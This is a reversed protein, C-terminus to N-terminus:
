CQGNSCLLASRLANQVCDPVGLGNGFCMGGLSIKNAYEETLFQQVEKKQKEHGVNYQPICNPLFNYSLLIDKADLNLIKNDDKLGNRFIFDNENANVKLVDRMVNKASQSIFSESIKNKNRYFHGGMMLTLKTFLDESKNDSSHIAQANNEIDSDYIVGLLCNDNKNSKPVLFGFGKQEKTIIIRKTYVNILLISVYDTKISTKKDSPHILDQFTNWNITSHIHDYKYTANSTQIELNRCSISKINSNYEIEINAQNILYNSLAQPLVELGDRLKFVGGRKFDKSLYRVNSQPSINNQYDILARSLNKEKKHMQKMMGIIVSGYTKELNPLKPFTSNVSLKTVDGAYIGHIVASLINDSLSKNLRRSVFHEISEDELDIRKKRFPEMIIGKLFDKMLGSDKFYKLTRFFKLEMIENSTNLLYKRNAPSKPGLYEIQDGKGLKELIDIILLTGDSIGRLTRPGKEFNVDNGNIKLIETNIWGGPRKNSEFIRIKIDPRIKSLFFAYSLGSIGGGIIGVSGNRPVLYSM